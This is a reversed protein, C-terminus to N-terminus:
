IREKRLMNTLARLEGALAQDVIQKEDIRRVAHMVTTHDRDGFQRGIEPFSQKTLQKCLYMAIQRPHSFQRARKSSRLDLPRVQYYEAVRKQIEEVNVQRREPSRIVHRLSEVVLAMTVP